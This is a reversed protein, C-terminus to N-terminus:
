SLQYLSRSNIAQDRTRTWSPCNFVNHQYDLPPPVVKFVQPAYLLRTQGAQKPFLFDSTRIWSRRYLINSAYSLQYLLPRLCIHTCSQFCDIYFADFETFGTFHCYRALNLFSFPTSVIRHSGLDSIVHNLYLGSQLCENSHYRFNYYYPLGCTKLEIRSALALFLLFAM